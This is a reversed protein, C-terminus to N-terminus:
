SKPSRIWDKLKNYLFPIQLIILIFVCYSFLFTKIGVIWQLWGTGLREASMDKFYFIMWANEIFDSLGLIVIVFVLVFPKYIFWGCGNIRWAIIGFILLYAIVFVYDARYVLIMNSKVDDIKATVCVSCDERKLKFQLTDSYYQHLWKVNKSLKNFNDGFLPSVNYSFNSITMVSSAVLLVVAILFLIRHNM